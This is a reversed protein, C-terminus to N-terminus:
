APDQAEGSLIEFLALQKRPDAAAGQAQSEVTVVIKEDGSGTHTKIAYFGVTRHELKRVFGITGPALQDVIRAELEGIIEVDRRVALDIEALPRGAKVHRGPRNVAEFSAAAAPKHAIIGRRALGPRHHTVDAKAVTDADGVVVLRDQEALGKTQ